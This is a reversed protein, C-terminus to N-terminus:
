SPCYCFVLVAAFCARVEGGAVQILSQLVERSPEVNSGVFFKMGKFIQRSEPHERSYKNAFITLEFDEEPLWREQDLSSFAWDETVIWAGRAIAFLVKITRRTEKSVILHTVGAAYDVSKVVRAKRHGSDSAMNADIAHIACQLVGRKEASVGTIGIVNRSVKGPTKKSTTSSFDMALPIPTSNVERYKRQFGSVSGPTAALKDVTNEKAVDRRAKKVVPTTLSNNSVPTRARKKAASQTLKMASSTSPKTPPKRQAPAKKVSPVKAPVDASVSASALSTRTTQTPTASQIAPRQTKSRTAPSQTRSRTAPSHTRSRTAPSQTRSRNAPSQTRSRTAPSPAPSTGRSTSRTIRSVAPSPTRMKAASSATARTVSRSTRELLSPSSSPTKLKSASTPTKAKVKNISSPTRAKKKSPPTTMEPTVPAPTTTAPTATTKPSDAVTSAVTAPSTTTVSDASPSKASGRPARCDTCYRRTRPNSCGCAACSWIGSKLTLGSGYSLSNRNRRRLERATPVKKNSADGPTNSNLEGSSTTPTSASGTLAMPSKSKKEVPAPSPQSAQSDPIVIVDYKKTEIEQENESESEAVIGSAQSATVEDEDQQTPPGNLTKRRKASSSVSKSRIPRNPTSFAVEESAPETTGLMKLIADSTMPEMSLARRKRRAGNLAKNIKFNGPPPTSPAKTELEKKDTKTDTQKDTALAKSAEAGLSQRRKLKPKPAQEVLNHQSVPFFPREDMRKKSVYCANVWLQSVIKLEFRLAAAAMSGGGAQWKAIKAKWAPTFHSLVM